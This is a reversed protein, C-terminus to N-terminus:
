DKTLTDVKTKMIAMDTKIVSQDTRITDIGVKLELLTSAIAKDTAIKEAQNIQINHVDEEIGEVKDANRNIDSTNHTINSYTIGCVFVLTVITVVTQGWRHWQEKAM